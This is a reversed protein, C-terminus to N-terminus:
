KSAFMIQAERGVSKWQRRARVPCFHAAQMNKLRKKNKTKSKKQGAHQVIDIVDNDSTRQDITKNNNQWM